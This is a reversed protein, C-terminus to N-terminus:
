KTMTQWWSRISRRARPKLIPTEIGFKIIIRSICPVIQGLVKRKQDETVICHPNLPIQILHYKKMGGGQLTKKCGYMLLMVTVV